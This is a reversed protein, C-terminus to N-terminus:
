FPYSIGVGFNFNDYRWERYEGNEGRTFLKKIFDDFGIDPAKWGANEYFLDPRKFRFGLDLRLVVYNFDIRFGTGASVGLQNYLNKFRFQATDTAGPTISRLNWINGIDVFVAGRLTLTNPIIRAIDYRYEANAELQIDGTRDNFLTATSNYPIRRQGGIGLGRAPWGRMSNVGGSFYQKFFPLTRNSDSGLLTIGVGMFSRFALVTKPYKLTYRWEGDLKVFRRLYKVAIPLNGWTLGSEEVNFRLTRERGLQFGNQGKSQFHSISLSMGTVYSTNYSYRLFPNQVLINNFSDTQNFLLNFEFNLPRFSVKWAPNRRYPANWGFNLNFSQLNFLNVRNNFGAFGNIFTEGSKNLISALGPFILKPILISNSYGVEQASVLPTNIGRNNNLEIGTRLGHRMRIGEKWLNRNSLSLNMSLGLLNGALVSTANNSSLYSAELAAEFGLKKNPVLEFQVDLLNSSDPTERINIGVSQWVGSRSLANITKNFYAERYLDGPKVFINRAIFDPNFLPREALISIGELSSKNSFSDETSQTKYFDPFVQVRRIKYAKLKSSDAPPNLKISIRIFPSDTKKQETALLELQAFPDDSITTLAASTTDGIVKVEANTFKYYGHNRFSDVLRATEELVALKSIPQNISLKSEGVANEAIRQMEVIGLRYDIKEIRTPAGTNVLYKLRVKRGSSDARYSISSRYYGAHFLSARMNAISRIVASSDMAPPNRIISLLFLIERENIRLSDEIQNSLRYTLAKKEQKRFNGGKVEFDHSIIFHKGAPAKRIVPPLCSSFVVALFILGIPLIYFPDRRNLKIM